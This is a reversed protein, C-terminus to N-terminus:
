IHKITIYNHVHLREGIAIKTALIMGQPQTQHTPISITESQSHLQMQRMQFRVIQFAHAHTQDFQKARRIWSQM